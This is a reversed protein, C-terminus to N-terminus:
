IISTIPVPMPAEWAPPAGQISKMVSATLDAPPDLEELREIGNIMSEYLKFQLACSTCADLHAFLKKKKSDKIEKDFVSDFLDRYKECSSM